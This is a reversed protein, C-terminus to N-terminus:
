YPDIQRVQAEFWDSIERIDDRDPFLATLLQLHGIETRFDLIQCNEQLLHSYHERAEDTRSTILTLRAWLRHRSCAEQEASVLAMAQEWDAQAEECHNLLSHM